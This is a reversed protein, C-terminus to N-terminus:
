ENRGGLPAEHSVADFKPMAMAQRYFNLVEQASKQWSFQNARILAKKQLDKRYSNDLAIKLIADSMSKLDFPDVYHAAEGAVEPLSTTTSTIVAAGFGMAELVPLGFGEYLSPYLFGFCNKYLWRLKEDSIYGTLLVRNSLGLQKLFTELEGEMWGEGGALVLPYPTATGSLYGLFARLLNRLNKRPELTCVSLWFKGSELGYM